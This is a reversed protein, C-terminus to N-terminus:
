DVMIIFYFVIDFAFKITCFPIDTPPGVPAVIEASGAVPATTIDAAGVAAVGFGVASTNLLPPAILVTAVVPPTALVAFIPVLAFVADPDAPEPLILTYLMVPIAPAPFIENVPLIIGLAM